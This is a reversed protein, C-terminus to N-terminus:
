LYSNIYDLIGCTTHTSSKFSSRTTKGLVCDEYFDLETIKEDGLVRQKKLEMLGEVSMHGLRLHWLKTKYKESGISVSSLGIIAEGDLVYRM